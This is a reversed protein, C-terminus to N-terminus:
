GRLPIEAVTTYEPGAPTLISRKLRIRDVRTEGFAEDAFADVASRVRDLNRAGKVRAVTVHPEWPRRDRRVGLPALGRDLAAAIAGLPEAGLLGIWVVDIRRGGPFAGTGRLALTLPAVGAAATEAIAVVEPVRAEPTDGLFKLTAHLHDLDVLKLQGGSTRLAEALAEIRPHRGVDVALFARFAM